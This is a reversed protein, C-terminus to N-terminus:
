ALAPLLRNTLTRALSPWPGLLLSACRFALTTLDLCAQLRPRTEFFQQALFFSGCDAEGFTYESKYRRDAIGPDFTGEGHDLLGQIEQAVPVNAGWRRPGTTRVDIMLGTEPDCAGASPM